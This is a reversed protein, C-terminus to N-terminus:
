KEGVRVCIEAIPYNELVSNKWLNALSSEINLTKNGADATTDLNTTWAAVWPPASKSVDLAGTIHYMRWEPTGADKAWGTEFTLEAAGNRAEHKILKFDPYRSGNRQTEPYAPKIQWNILNAMEDASGQAAAHNSWLPKVTVTFQQRGKSETDLAPKVTLRANEGEKTKEQRVELLEKTQKDQAVEVAAAGTVYDTTLAYQRIQNSPASDALKQHLSEVLKDLAARDPSFIYLYFPRFKEATKDSSFPVARNAIESYVSGDFESRLGLIAGGWGNNILELLQKKVCFSDSGQACNLGTNNKDASQVGDTVLIHFRPPSKDEANKDLPEAFSKIAGALNTERGNYFSRDLSAKSLDLDSFSPASVDADVRRVVVQPQPSMTTVVNRLELLTKSFITGGDPAAAFAKKGNPSVYGAMSASADLYVVLNDTTAIPESATRTQNEM